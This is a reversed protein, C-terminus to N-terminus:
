DASRLMQLGRNLKGLHRAVDEGKMKSVGVALIDIVAMHAIRSPLPTFSDDAAKEVDIPIPITSRKVVPTGSPALGILIAGSERVHDMAELLSTTRGSQSIAVVVDGPALSMASMAQIQPDSHAASAIQLRFFKHQADIAVPSSAGFGYFEVRKANCLVDVAAEIAEPDLTNRVRKLTDVTADFVKFAYDRATDLESLEFSEAVPNQAGSRAVALKFSQFGNCGIARCFRIVTPESVGAAAALDVIRMHIVDEPRTLVLEAVKRESKRLQELRTEVERLIHLTSTTVNNKGCKCPSDTYM